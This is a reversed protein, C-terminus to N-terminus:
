LTVQSFSIIGHANDNALISVSMTGDAGIQAGGVPNSLVLEFAETDEPIDDDLVSIYVQKHLEGEEFTLTVTRFCMLCVLLINNRVYSAAYANLRQLFLRFAANPLCSWHHISNRNCKVCKLATVHRKSPYKLYIIM